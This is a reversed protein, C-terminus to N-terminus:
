EWQMGALRLLREAAEADSSGLPVAGPLALDVNILASHLATVELTRTDLKHRAKFRIFELFAHEARDFGGWAPERGFVECFVIRGFDWRSLRNRLTGAEGGEYVQQPRTSIGLGCAVEHWTRMWLRVRRAARPEARRVAAMLALQFQEYPIGTSRQAVFVICELLDDLRGEHQPVEALQRCLLDEAEPRLVAELFGPRERFWESDQMVAVLARYLGSVRLPELSRRELFTRVSPHQPRPSPYLPAAYDISHSGRETGRTVTGARDVTVVPGDPRSVTVVISRDPCETKALKDKSAEESAPLPSANRKIGTKASM